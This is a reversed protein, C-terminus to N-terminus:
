HHWNKSTLAVLPSAYTYKSRAHLLYKYTFTYYSFSTRYNQAWDNIIFVKMIWQIEGMILSFTIAKPFIILQHNQLVETEDFEHKRVNIQLYHIVWVLM